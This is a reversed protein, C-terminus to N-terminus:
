ILKGQRYIPPIPHLSTITCETLFDILALNHDEFRIDTPVYTDRDATDEHWRHKHEEGAESGDPNTHGSGHKTLKRIPTSERSLLVYSWNTLGVAGTLRMPPDPDPCVVVVEFRYRPGSRGISTQWRIRDGITKPLAVLRDAEAGTIM